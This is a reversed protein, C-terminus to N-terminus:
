THTSGLSFHNEYSNSINGLNFDHFMINRAQKLNKFQKPFDEWVNEGDLSLRCHEAETMNLFIKKRLAYDQKSLIVKEMKAYISSDPQMKEIEEPLPSYVNNTFAYGGYELNPIKDMGEIYNGDPYDKRLFFKQHREPTFRPTLIVIQRKKKYYSSLKM